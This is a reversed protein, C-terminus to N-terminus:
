VAYAWEKSIWVIEKFLKVKEESTAFTWEIELKQIREFLFSKTIETNIIGISAPDNDKLKLVQYSFWIQRKVQTMFNTYFAVRYDSINYIIPNEKRFLFVGIHGSGDTWWLNKFTDFYVMCPGDYIILTTNMRTIEGTNKNYKAITGMQGPLNPLNEAVYVYNEDVALGSPTDFGAVNEIEETLINFKSITNSWKWNSIWIYNGDACLMFPFGGVDYSKTIETTNPNIKFLYSPLAFDMSCVWIYGQHYIVGYPRGSLTIETFNKYEVNFRAVKSQIRESVWVNGNGDIAVCYFGINYQPEGTLYFIDYSKTITNIRFLAGFENSAVWVTENGDYVIGLPMSDDPLNIYEILSDGQVQISTVAPVSINQLALLLLLMILLSIIKLFKM